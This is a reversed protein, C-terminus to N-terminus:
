NANKKGKVDFYLTYMFDDLKDVFEGLLEAVEPRGNEIINMAGAHFRKLTALAEALGEPSVGGINRSM